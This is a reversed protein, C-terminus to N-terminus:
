FTALEVVTIKPLNHMKDQICTGCKLQVQEFKEPMRKVLKKKCITDLYSFIIHGLIRHFNEKNTM